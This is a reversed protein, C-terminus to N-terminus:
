IIQVMVAIGWAAPVQLPALLLHLCQHQDSYASHPEPTLQQLLHRSRSSYRNLIYLILEDQTCHASIWTIYWALKQVKELTVSYLVSGHRM